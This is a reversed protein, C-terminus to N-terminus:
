AGSPGEPARAKKCASRGSCDQGATITFRNQTMNGHRGAELCCFISPSRRACARSVPSPSPSPSAQGSAQGSPSRGVGFGKGLGESDGSSRGVAEEGGTRGLPPRSRSSVKARADSQAVGQKGARHHPEDRSTHKGGLEGGGVEGGGADRGLTKSGTRPSQSQSSSSSSSPTRKLSRGDSAGGARAKDKEKDALGKASVPM